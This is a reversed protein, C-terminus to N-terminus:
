VQGCAAGGHGDFIGFLMANPSVTGVRLIAEAHADESPNNSRLSNMDFSKAPCNGDEQGLWREETTYENKRLINTAEIPTLRSASKSSTNFNAKLNVLSISNNNCNKALVSNRVSNKQSKCAIKTWVVYSYNRFVLSGKLYFVSKLRTGYWYNCGWFKKSASYKANFQSLTLPVQLLSKTQVARYKQALATWSVAM